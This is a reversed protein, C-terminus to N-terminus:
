KKFVKLMAKRISFNTTISNVEQNFSNAEKNSFSGYPSIPTVKNKRATKKNSTTNTLLTLSSTEDSSLKMEATKNNLTQNNKNLLSIKKIKRKPSVLNNFHKIEKNSFNDTLEKITINRFFSSAKNELQRTISTNSVESIESNNIAKLVKYISLVKGNAILKYGGNPGREGVLIKAKSLAQLGKELYRQNTGYLAAITKGSIQKKTIFLLLVTSILANSYNSFYNMSNYNQIRQVLVM